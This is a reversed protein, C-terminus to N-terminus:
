LSIRECINKWKKHFQQKVYLIIKVSVLHFWKWLSKMNTLYSLGYASQPLRSKSLVHSKALLWNLWERSQGCRPTPLHSFTRDEGLCSYEQPGVTTMLSPLWRQAAKRWTVPKYSCATWTCSRPPPHLTAETQCQIAATVGTVETWKRHGRTSLFM